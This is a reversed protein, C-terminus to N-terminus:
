DVITLVYGFHVMKKPALVIPSAYDSCSPRIIGEEIWEVVQNEVFVKEKPSLRRSRQYIPKDDNVIIKTKIPTTEITCPEYNTIM